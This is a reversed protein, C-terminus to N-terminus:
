NLSSDDGTIKSMSLSFYILLITGMSSITAFFFLIKRPDFTWRSSSTRRFSLRRGGVMSEAAVAAGGSGSTIITISNHPPPPNISLDTAGMVVATPKESTGGRHLTPAEMAMIKKVRPSTAVQTHDKDDAFSFNTEGGRQSGKRSLSRQLIIRSNANLDKEALVSSFREIDVIYSDAKHGKVEVAKMQDGMRIKQSGKEQLDERISSLIM